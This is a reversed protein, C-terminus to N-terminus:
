LDVGNVLWWVEYIEKEVWGILSIKPSDFSFVLIQMQVLAIQIEGENVQPARAGKTEKSVM